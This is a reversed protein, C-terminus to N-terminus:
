PTEAKHLNTEKDDHDVPRTYSKESGDRKKARVHWPSVACFRSVAVGRGVADLEAAAPTNDHYRQGSIAHLTAFISIGRM